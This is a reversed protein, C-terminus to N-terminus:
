PVENGKDQIPNVTTARPLQFGPAVNFEEREHAKDELFDKLVSLSHSTGFCYGEPSYGHYPAKNSQPRLEIYYGSAGLELRKGGIPFWPGAPQPGSESETSETEIPAQESQSSKKQRAVSWKGLFTGAAGGIARAVDRLALAAFVGIAIEITSATM